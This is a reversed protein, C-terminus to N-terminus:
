GIRRAVEAALQLNREAYIQTVDARAHGLSVQAAEIGFRKRIETACSHRLQLPHWHLVEIGSKRAKLIAYTIARRYSDVDYFARKPRRPKRTPMRQAQSPTMPTRRAHRRAQNRWREAEIPQFLFDETGRHLFPKLVEQARPGIPVTRTTGRWRNKHEFPEYIWVSSSCDIDRLRM